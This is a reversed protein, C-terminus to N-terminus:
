RAEPMSVTEMVGVAVSSADIINPTNAEGAAPIVTSSNVFGRAEVVVLRM